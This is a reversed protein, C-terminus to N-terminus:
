KVRRGGPLNMARYAWTGSVDLYITKTLTRHQYDAHAKSDAWCALFCEGYM